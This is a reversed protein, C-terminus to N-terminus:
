VASCTGCAREDAVRAAAVHEDPSIGGAARLHGREQLVRGFELSPRRAIRAPGLHARRVYDVRRDIEQGSISTPPPPPLARDHDDNRQPPVPRVVREHLSWGGRAEWDPLRRRSAREGVDFGAWSSDFNSMGLVAQNFSFNGWEYGVGLGVWPELPWALPLQIAAWSM